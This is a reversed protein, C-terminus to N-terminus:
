SIARSDVRSCFSLKIRIATTFYFHEWCSLRDIATAPFISNAIDRRTSGRQKLGVVGKHRAIARFRLLFFKGIFRGTWLRPHRCTTRREGSRLPLAFPFCLSPNYFPNGTALYLVVLAFPPPPSPLLRYDM